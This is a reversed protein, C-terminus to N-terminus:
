RKFAGTAEAPPHQLQDAMEEERKAFLPGGGDKLPRAADAIGRYKMRHGHQRHEAATRRHDGALMAPAGGYRVHAREIERIPTAAGAGVLAAPQNAAILENSGICEM